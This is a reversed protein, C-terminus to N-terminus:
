EGQKNKGTFAFKALLDQNFNRRYLKCFQLNNRAEISKGNSKVLAAAFEDEAASFDAKLVYIVGLNNHADAAGASEFKIAQSFATEASEYNKRKLLVLGLDFWAEGDDKKLKVADRFATEAKGWNKLDVYAMGLAYFAKQYSRRSLKIAETFEGAADEAQQTNYFCVGINFHIRALFDDSAEEAESFLIARRYDELATKYNKSQAARTGDEFARVTLPTEQASASIAVTLIVVLVFTITRM